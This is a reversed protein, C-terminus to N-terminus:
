RFHSDMPHETSCESSISQVRFREVVRFLRHLRCKPCDGSIRSHSISANMYVFSNQDVVNVFGDHELRFASEGARSKQMKSVVV